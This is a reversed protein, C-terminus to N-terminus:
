DVANQALYALIGRISIFGVPRGDEVVPIHRYGGDAMMNLAYALTDHQRVSLPGATMVEGLAVTHIEGERGAFRRVLDHETFIGSLRGDGDVVLVSGFRFRRMREVAEAVTKRSDLLIPRPANLQSVPDELIAEHLRGRKPPPPDHYAGDGESPDYTKYLEPTPGEGTDIM